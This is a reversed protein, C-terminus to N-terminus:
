VRERCSARGIKTDQVKASEQELIRLAALDDEIQQFATLVTQRYNAVIADYGARDEAVIARRRGADFLTQALAPGVSWIRGPWTFWNQISTSEFGAAAGLTVLPYFASM